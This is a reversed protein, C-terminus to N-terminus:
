LGMTAPIDADFYGAECDAVPENKAARTALSAQYAEYAAKDRQYAALREDYNSAEEKNISGAM